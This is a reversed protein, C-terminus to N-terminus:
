FAGRKKSEDGGHKAQPEAKPWEFRKTSLEQARAIAADWGMMAADRDAWYLSGDFQMEEFWKEFESKMRVGEPKLGNL